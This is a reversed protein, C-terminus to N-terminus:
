PLLLDRLYWALMSALKAASFDALRRRQRAVIEARWAGDRVLRDITRAVTAPDRDPLLVGADGMTYPIASTPFAAVPVGFRMAELLPICFGEHESLCVFVDAVRYYAALEDDPVGGTFVVAEHLRLADVLQELEEQWRRIAVHGVVLLRSMPNVRRHYHAFARLLDDQRKNPAIRGVFLVNVFGDDFRALVDGSPPTRHLGELDTFLPLVRTNPAGLAELEECNFPSVGLALHAARVAYPLVYRGIKTFYYTRLHYRLFYHAPTINHYFLVRPGRARVFLDLESCYVGYHLLVASREDDVAPFDRSPRARHALSGDITEAFVDSEFGWARFLDQLALVNNGM